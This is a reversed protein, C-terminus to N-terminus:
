PRITKDRKASSTDMSARLISLRNHVSVETRRLSAAILRRSRKEAVMALLRRDEEETWPRKLKRVPLGKLIEKRINPVAM